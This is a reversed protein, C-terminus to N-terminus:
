VKQQTRYKAPNARMLKSFVRHFQAYSGFGAELAQALLNGDPDAAQISLFRELRQRNRFEALPMGIQEKFLRSLRNPSLGTRKALEAVPGPEADNRLLHAAREVAPHVIAGAPVDDGSSFATWSALLAYTMGANYRAPQSPVPVIEDFLTTLRRAQPQSLRRHFKGPPDDKRLVAVSDDQECSRKVASPKWVLIWMAFDRSFDVLIHEQSPFLWLVDNRQMSYTRDNVLYTGTGQVVMNLELEDHHHRPHIQSARYLWIRGDLRPPIRLLEKM